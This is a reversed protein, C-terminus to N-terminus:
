LREGLTFLFKTAIQSQIVWYTTSPTELYVIVIITYKQAVKNVSLLHFDKIIALLM